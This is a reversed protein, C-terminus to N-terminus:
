LNSKKGMLGQPRFSLVLILIVFAYMDMYKSSIYGAGLSEVVGLLYGGMIAGPISGMGGLIIVVFAKLIPVMGMTPSVVFIPGLQSGAAAALASGLAFTISTIRNVSIGVLAAAKKDQAVARMSRGLSTKHIVFNLVIIFVLAILIILFRQVTLYVGVIDMVQPYIPPFNRFDHGWLIAAINELVFLLGLTAGGIVGGIAAYLSIKGVENKSQTEM